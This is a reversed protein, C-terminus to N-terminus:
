QAEKHRALAREIAERTPQAAQAGAQQCALGAAVSAATMADEFSHGMALAAAFVGTYTDGAGTSDLVQPLPTARTQHVSGNVQALLSGEAGLTVLVSANLRRAISMARYTPNVGGIAFMTCLQSLEIQNVILIDIHGPTIGWETPLPSANLVVKCNARKARQALALSETWPVELQLLLVRSNALVEDSVSATSACNNAGPAVVITNEGRADVTIIAMGTPRGKAVEVAAVHVGGERLTSLATEAFQDDGVAGYMYTSTGFLAAAHAQNAGKGGPSVLGNTGMVTEGPQPIEKTSVSVDVNISGFVTLM